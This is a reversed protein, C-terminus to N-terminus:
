KERHQERRAQAIDPYVFQHVENDIVRGGGALMMHNGALRGSPITLWSDSLHRVGLWSRNVDELSEGVSKGSADRIEFNEGPHQLVIRRQLIEAAICRFLKRVNRHHLALLCNRDLLQMRPVDPRHRLQPLRQGAVSQTILRSWDLIRMHLQRLWGNRERDLGLTASVFVFKANAKM